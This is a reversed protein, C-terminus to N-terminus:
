EGPTSTLNRGNRRTQIFDPVNCALTPESEILQADRHDQEDFDQDEGGCIVRGDKARVYLYPDAAEWILCEEPWLHRPQPKFLGPGASTADIRPVIKPLEYGHLSRNAERQDDFGRDDSGQWANVPNIDVIEHPAFLQAGQQRARRLIGSTLARPDVVISGDSVIVASRSLGFRSHLEHVISIDARCDLEKVTV